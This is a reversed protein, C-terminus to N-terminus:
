SKRETVDERDIVQRTAGHLWIQMDGLAASMPWYFRSFEEVADDCFAVEYTTDDASICVSRTM